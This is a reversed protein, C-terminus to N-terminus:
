HSVTRKLHDALRLALAVITLTPNAYGATPFVSSGAIYLNAIGHVRCNPDVVSTRRDTGMRTTGMHHSADRVIPWPEPNGALLPSDLRGISRRRLDDALRTHLVRMTRMDMDSISWMLRARPNAFMDRKDSLSVRNQPRPEQEMFNEIKMARVVGRNFMRFWVSSLVDPAHAALDKILRPNALAKLRRRYLEGLAQAGREDIVPRLRVYSNLVRERTQEADSLRLGLRVRGPRGSSYAPHPLKRRGAAIRVLGCEGKPHDMYYRGVQDFDNGLGSPRQSRSVLLMRANEIGGCAIVTVKPHIFFKRGNTTRVVLRHVRTGSPDLLLDTVNAHLWTSVHGRDPVSRRYMDRFRTPRRPWYLFAADLAATRVLIGRRDNMSGADFLTLDPVGLLGCARRWYNMLESRSLPWHGVQIWPRPGMDIPHPLAAAGWWSNTTGGFYRLRSEPGIRLDACELDYVSATLPDPEMGGAELVCVRHRSDEFQLAATVGAAGTGVICVECEVISDDSQARADRFGAPLADSM